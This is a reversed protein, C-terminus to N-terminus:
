VKRRMRHLSLGAIVVIISGIGGGTVPAPGAEVSVDDLGFVSPDQEGTFALVMSTSTAKITATYRTYGFAESDTLSLVTQGGFTALFSDHPGGNNALFFTVVYDTNKVTTITQSLTSTGAQNASTSQFEAYWIGSNPGPDDPNAQSTSFATGGGGGTTWGPTTTASGTESLTDEFGPNQVLNQARAHHASVLSAAFLVAVALMSAASPFGKVIRTAACATAFSKAMDKM